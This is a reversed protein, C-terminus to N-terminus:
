ILFLKDWLELIDDYEFDNAASYKELRSCCYSRIETKIQAEDAAISYQSIKTVTGYRTAQIKRKLLLSFTLAYLLQKAEEDEFTESEPFYAAKVDKEALAVISDDKLTTLPYGNERLIQVTVM